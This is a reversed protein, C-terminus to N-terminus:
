ISIFKFVDVRTSGDGPGNGSEGAEQMSMTLLTARATAIAARMILDEGAM